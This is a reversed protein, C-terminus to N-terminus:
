QGLAKYQEIVANDAASRAIAQLAEASGPAVRKGRNIAAVVPKSATQAKKIMAKQFADARGQVLAAAADLRDSLTITQGDLGVVLVASDGQERNFTSDPKFWTRVLRDELYEDVKGYVALAANNVTVNGDRFDIPTFGDVYSKLLEKERSRNFVVVPAPQPAGLPWAPVNQSLLDKDHAQLEQQVVPDLLYDNGPTMRGEKNPNPVL